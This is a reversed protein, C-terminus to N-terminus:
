EEEDEEDNVEDGGDEDDDFDVPSGDDKVIRIQGTALAAAFETETLELVEQEAAKKSKKKAKKVRKRKFFTSIEHGIRDVIPPLVSPLISVALVLWTPERGSHKPLSPEGIHEPIDPLAKFYKM